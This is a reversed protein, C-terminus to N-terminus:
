RYYEKFWMKLLTIEYGNHKGEVLWGGIVPYIGMRATLDNADQFCGVMFAHINRYSMYLSTHFHGWLLINPKNGSPLREIYKQLKYSQAYAPNGTPHVVDIYINSGDLRIRAYFDGIWKLDKRRQSIVKGPHISKGKQYEKLGHNGCIYLTKVGKPYEKIVEEVQDDITFKSLQSVQTPYVNVGEIVDGAHIVYEVGEQKAFDYFKQLFDLRSYKSGIHTDGIFALFFEKGVRITTVNHQIYENRKGNFYYYDGDRVIEYGARRLKKIEYMIGKEDKGLKEILDELTVPTKLLRLLKKNM